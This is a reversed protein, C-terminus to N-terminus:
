QHHDITSLPHDLTSNAQESSSVKDRSGGRDVMRWGGEQRQQNAASLMM